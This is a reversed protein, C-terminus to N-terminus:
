ATDKLQELINKAQELNSLAEDYNEKALYASGLIGLMKAVNASVKGKMKLYIKLARQMM